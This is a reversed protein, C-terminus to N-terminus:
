NFYNRCIHPAIKAKNLDPIVKAASESFSITKATNEEIPDPYDSNVRILTTNKQSCTMREFPFRIISPTNFGVGLELLAVKKGEAGDLFKGYNGNARYWNEDQVFFMDKRVNVEMKGGCVPCKPVLYRPIKCDKQEAVMQKVLEEDDYLRDHCAKACQIKGYDGQVAFIREGDFGAKVFLGDVNTTVVFYDRDKVLAFLQEYLKESPGFRNLLIHRSWYAWKEEQTKFPYFTASYMDEVGYKKIFDAFDNEFREGGYDHGAAASLGAGGGIIIRDADSITRKTREIREEYSANM